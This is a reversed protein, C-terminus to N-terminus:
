GNSVAREERGHAEVIGEDTMGDEVWQSAQAEALRVRLELIIALMRMDDALSAM